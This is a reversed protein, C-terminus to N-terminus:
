KAVDLTVMWETDALRQISIVISYKFGHSKAMNKAVEVASHQSVVHVPYKIIM